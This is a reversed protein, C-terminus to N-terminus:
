STPPLCSPAAPKPHLSASLRPTLVTITVIVSFVIAAVPIMSMLRIPGRRAKPNVITLLRDELSFPKIMATQGFICNPGGASLQSALSLLEAAYDSPKVGRLIASDDAAIESEAELKKAAQWFFPNFWHVACTLLAFIQTLNDWRRIHGIEHLLVATLRSTEWNEASSPLLVVPRRVGWTIPVAPDSGRALRIEINGPLVAPLKSGYRDNLQARYDISQARWRNVARRALIARGVTFVAGGVWVMLVVCAVIMPATPLGAPVAACPTDGAKEIVVSVAAYAPFLWICGFAAVWALHRVAANQIQRNVGRTLAFIVSGLITWALGWWMLSVISNM